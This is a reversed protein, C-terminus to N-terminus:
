DKRRCSLHRASFATLVNPLIPLGSVTKAFNLYADDSMKALSGFNYEFYDYGAKAIDPVSSVDACVGFRIKMIILELFYRM